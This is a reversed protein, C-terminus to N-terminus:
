VLPRIVHELLDQRGKATQLQEVVDQPLSRFSARVNGLTITWSKAGEEAADERFAVWGMRPVRPPQHNAGPDDASLFTYGTHTAAFARIDAFLAAIDPWDSSLPTKDVPPLAFRRDWDDFADQGRLHPNM